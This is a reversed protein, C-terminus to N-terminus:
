FFSSFCLRSFRMEALFKLLFVKKIFNPLYWFFDIFDKSLLHTLLEIILTIDQLSDENDISKKHLNHKSYAQLVQM